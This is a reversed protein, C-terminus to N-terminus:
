YNDIFMIANPLLTAIFTCLLMYVTGSLLSRLKVHHLCMKVLPYALNGTTVYNRRLATAM